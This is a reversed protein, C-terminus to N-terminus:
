GVVGAAGVHLVRWVWVGGLGLILTATVALALAPLEERRSNIRKRAIGEAGFAISLVRFMYVCAMLSGFSIVAVWYWQGALLSTSLLQWKALFSGSPPLGILAVGALGLSFFTLPLQSAVGRLEAIRDHGAHQQITGAALFLASKAFGHSLAFLVLAGLLLQREDGEPMVLLLSLFLFLYGLQAISSYAALLKLRETIMAQWSGWLIALAGLFGLLDAAIPTVAPNFLGLWLRMVLYFAVKVVLASLVASVPAPANAHVTPLWFHLPLLASKLLLGATMLAMAVWLSPGAEVVGALLQLDLSGYRGYILAIGALFLLSGLLGLILYNLAARVATRSGGLASLTVASLGLLELTVYINFLDGALLLAYIATQLLLWLPWFQPRYRSQEFYRSAFITSALCVAASMLLFLVSLRDAYLAVGLGQRWGGLILFQPGETMVEALLLVVSVLTLSTAVTAIREANRPAIFVVLAAVLSLLVPWVLLNTM